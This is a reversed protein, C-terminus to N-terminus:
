FAGAKGVAEVLTRNLTTMQEAVDTSPQASARATWLLRGSGADTLRGSAAYGRREQGGGIPASVGVGGGFGGGGIGFGGIGVSFGPSRDRTGIVISSVFATSAGADRAARALQADTLSRSPDSAVLGDDARVATAGRSDLEAVLRDLCIQRVVTDYAECVALVRQGGLRPMPADPDSWSADLASSACGGLLAAGLLVANAAATRSVARSM